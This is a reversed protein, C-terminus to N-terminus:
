RKEYKWNRSKGESMWDVATELRRERTEDTKAETIWEIYDRRKSPSFKQYTALARASSRLAKMLDAPAALPGRAARTARRISGKGSDILDMARRIQQALERDSPLEGMSSIKRKPGKWFGFRLHSKFPAMMCLIKGNYEFFPMSWKVTESVGPCNQHLLKRLHILLPKAFPAAKRIHADIRPDKKAMPPSYWM